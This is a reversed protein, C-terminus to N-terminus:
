QLGHGSSRRQVAKGTSLSFIRLWGCFGTIGSFVLSGGMFLTLWFGTTKLSTFLMLLSGALVLLGNAFRAWRELHHHQEMM